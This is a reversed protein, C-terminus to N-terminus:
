QSEERVSEGAKFACDFSTPLPLCFTAGYVELPRFRIQEKQSKVKEIHDKSIPPVDAELKAVVQEFFQRDDPRVPWNIPDVLPAGGSDFVGLVFTACTLGLKLFHGQPDFAGQPNCFAYGILEDRRIIQRIQAAVQRSLLPHITPEHFRYGRAEKGAWAEDRLDNHWYLHTIRFEGGDALGHRVGVHSNKRNICVAVSCKPHQM